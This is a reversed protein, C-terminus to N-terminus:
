QMLKTKTLVTVDCESESAGYAAKLYTPWRYIIHVASTKNIEAYGCNNYIEGMTGSFVHGDGLLINAKGLHDLFIYSYSTYKYYLLFINPTGTPQATQTGASNYR